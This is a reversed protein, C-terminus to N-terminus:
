QYSYAMAKELAEERRRQYEDVFLHLQSENDAAFQSLSVCLKCYLKSKDCNEDALRMVTRTFDRTSHTAYSLTYQKSTNEGDNDVFSFHITKAM